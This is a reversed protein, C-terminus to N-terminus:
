YCRILLLHLVMIRRIALGLSVRREPYFRLERNMLVYNLDITLYTDTVCLRCIDSASKPWSGPGTLSAKAPPPIKRTPLPVAPPPLPSRVRGVPATAKPTVTTMARNVLLHFRTSKGLQQKMDAQAVDGNIAKIFYGASLTNDEM